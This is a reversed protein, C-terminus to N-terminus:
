LGVGGKKEKWSIAVLPFSCALSSIAVLAVDQQGNLYLIKQVVLSL